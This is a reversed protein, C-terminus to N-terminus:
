TSVSYVEILQNIVVYEDSKLRFFGDNSCKM